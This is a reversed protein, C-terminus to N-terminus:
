GETSGKTGDAQGLAKTVLEQALKEGTTTLFWVSPTTRTDESVPSDPKTKLKGLDRYVNGKHITKAQRFHKNFTEAIRYSTLETVDTEKGVVYLLWIAKEATKWSQQPTGWKTPDHRWDLATEKNTNGNASSAVTRRKGSSRKKTSTKETIPPPLAKQGGDSVIEGEVINGTPGLLGAVQQGVSQAILPVDERSGEIELRLGQLEFRVKFKSM